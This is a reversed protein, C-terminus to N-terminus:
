SKRCPLEIEFRAGVKSEVCRLSGGHAEVIERAISLGLGAGDGRTSVFPEFIKERQEPAVGGGSNEVIIRCREDDIGIKSKIWGGPPAQQVANLLLNDLARSMSKEDFSWTEDPADGNLTINTQVAQERLNEIRARLWPKLAVPARNLEGLRTIALLRELLDDLREIEDLIARLAASQQELPKALANEAKLRMSAIPNRIEHAIQAAMRGLAATRDARALKEALVRSEDRTTKLKVSLQNLANVIRDLERAGTTPLLPLAEPPTATIANELARVRAMWSQMFWMVGAGSLLALLFLVGFGLTLKQYAAAARVHARSMTWVALQADGASVPEARLILTETESPFSRTQARGSDLAAQAVDSIRGAEAEPVDKKPMGGGYSPYAYALFGDHASWFGGEVEKFDALVLQLILTLERRREDTAFSSPTQPFSAKYAKFRQAALDGAREVQM